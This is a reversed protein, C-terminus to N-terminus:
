SVHSSGGLVTNFGNSVQPSQHIGLKLKFAIKIRMPSPTPHLCRHKMTKFGRKPPYSGQITLFCTHKKLVFIFRRNVNNVQVQTVGPRSLNREHPKFLFIMYIYTHTHAKNRNSHLQMNCYNGTFKPDMTRSHFKEISIASIGFVYLIHYSVCVTIGWKDENCTSINKLDISRDLEYFQLRYRNVITM